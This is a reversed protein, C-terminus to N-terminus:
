DVLHKLHPVTHVIPYYLLARWPDLAISKSNVFRSMKSFRVRRNPHLLYQEDSDFTMNALGNERDYAPDVRTPTTGQSKDTGSETEASCHTFEIISSLVNVVDLINLEGVVDKDDPKMPLLMDMLVWVLNEKLDSTRM